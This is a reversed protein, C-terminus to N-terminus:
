TMTWVRGTGQEHDAGPVCLVSEEGAAEWLELADALAATRSSGASGRGLGTLLFLPTDAPRHALLADRLLLFRRRALEAAPEPTPFLEPLQEGNHRLMYAVLGLGSAALGEVQRRVKEETHTYLCLSLVGLGSNFPAGLAASAYQWASLGPLVRATELERELGARHLHHLAPGAMGLLGPDGGSLLVVAAGAASHEAAIRTRAAFVDEGEALRDLVDFCDAAPNILDKVEAVFVPHGIVVEAEALAAAVSTTVDAGYGTGLISLTM